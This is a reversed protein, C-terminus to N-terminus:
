LSYAVYENECPNGVAVHLRGQDPEAIISAITVLGEEHRCISTPRRDHDSLMAKVDALTLAGVKGELLSRLRPARCASDPLLPLLAEQAVLDPHVFHNGHTVLDGEPPVVAFGDPTTEVDVISQRDTLVYNASSCLRARRFVALCGELSTQELLVRKVLYHPIGGALWTPTSLANQFFSVGAENLGPYGVLGAFSAMLCAPGEDPEVHLVIQLDTNLPSQDSNQGSLISGDATAGRGAAFSTCGARDLGMVEARVNCLLAEAFPLRAGDAIGRIEEVLHPAFAEIQPLFALARALLDERRLAPGKQELARLAAEGAITDLLVSAYRGIIDGCQAGHQYGREYPKGHVRVVPLERAAM